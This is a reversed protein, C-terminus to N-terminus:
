IKCISLINLLLDGCVTGPNAGIAWGADRHRRDYVVSGHGFIGSCAFGPHGMKDMAWVGKGFTLRLCGNHSLNQGIFHGLYTDRHMQKVNSTNVKNLYLEGQVCTPIHVNSTKQGQAFRCLVLIAFCIVSWILTTSDVMTFIGMWIYQAYAFCVILYFQLIDVIQSPVGAPWRM